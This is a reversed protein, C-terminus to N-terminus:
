LFKKLLDIITQILGKYKKNDAECIALAEPTNDKVEGQGTLLAKKALEQGYTDSLNLGYCTKKQLKRHPIVTDPTLQPHRKVIDVYLEMFAMEQEHTPLRNPLGEKRDFNGPFCINLTDSNHNIVAASHYDEPRGAWVTGDKQIVYHYGIGEWGKSLHWKEIDIATHHSTDAQPDADTGGSHHLVLYKLSNDKPKGKLKLFTETKFINM